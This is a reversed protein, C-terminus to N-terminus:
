AAWLKVEKTEFNYEGDRLIRALRANELAVEEGLGKSEFADVVTQWTAGKDSLLQEAKKAGVTPCGKYNDTSDGVLTQYLFNYDAEELDVEQVRGDILHYAPITLLDKDLSWIVTDFSRSGLIGLLDDAELKDEVMGNYKEALYDKAFKLLMPKRTNKRNAKYYPAVDKRYLNDGSLCTIVKDCGSEAIIKSMFEEMSGIVDKEHAHLTWTGNGWDIPTEAITAAKYAVIDGDVLLTRTNKM